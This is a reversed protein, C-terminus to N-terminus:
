ISVPNAMFCNLINESQESIYYGYGNGTNAGGCEDLEQSTSGYIPFGDLAYGVLTNEGFVGYLGSENNRILSGDQAVGIIDSNICNPSALRAPFAPLELLIERRPVKIINVETSSAIAEEVEVITETYVLRVGETIEFKVDQAEWVGYYPSYNTCKNLVVTTEVVEENTELETDENEFDQVEPSSIFEGMGEAIKQKLDALKASRSIIEPSYAEATYQMDEKDVFVLTNEPNDSRDNSEFFSVGIAILLFVITVFFLIFDRTRFMVKM